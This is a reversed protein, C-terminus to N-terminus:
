VFFTNPKVILKHGLLVWSLFFFGCKLWGLGFNVWMLAPLTTYFVHNSYYGHLNVSVSNM